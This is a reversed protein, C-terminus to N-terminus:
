VSNYLNQSYNQHFWIFGYSIVHFWIFDYSDMLVCLCIMVFLLLFYYVLVIYKPNWQFEYSTNVTQIYFNITQKHFNLFFWFWFLGFFTLDIVPWWPNKCGQLPNIVPKDRTAPKSQNEFMRFYESFNRFKYFSRM